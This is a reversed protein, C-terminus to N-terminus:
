LVDDTQQSFHRKPRVAEKARSAIGEHIGQQHGADDMVQDALEDRICERETSERPQSYGGIGMGVLWLVWLSQTSQLRSCLDVILSQENNVITSAASGRSGVRASSRIDPFVTEVLM